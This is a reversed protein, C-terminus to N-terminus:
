HNKTSKLSLFPRPTFWLFISPKQFEHSDKVFKLISFFKREFHEVIRSFPSIDWEYGNLYLIWSNQQEIQRNLLNISYFNGLFHCSFNWLLLLFYGSFKFNMEPENINTKISPSEAISRLAFASVVRFSVNFRSHSIAHQSCFTNM